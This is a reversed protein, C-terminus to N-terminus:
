HTTVIRWASGDWIYETADLKANLGPDFGVTGEANNASVRGSRFQVSFNSTGSFTSLTGLDCWEPAGRPPGFVFSRVPDNFAIALKLCDPTSLSTTEDIVKRSFLDGLLTGLKGSEYPVLLRHLMLCATAYDLIKTSVDPPAPALGASDIAARLMRRAEDARTSGPYKGVFAQGLAITPAQQYAAWDTEEAKRAEAELTAIRQRADDAHKGKPHSALFGRYQEVTNAEQARAWDGKESARAIPALTVLLMLLVLVRRM